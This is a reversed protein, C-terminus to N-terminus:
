LLAILFGLVGLLLCLPSFLKTDVKGFETNKIKKFFGVYKFDGLARILFITPIIWKVYREIWDPIEFNIFGTQLLYFLGFLVLGFGVLATEFKGPTFLRKGNENAPLSQELGWENGTLWNFHIGGLTIFVLFLITSFLTIM